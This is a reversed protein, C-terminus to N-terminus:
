QLIVKMEGLTLKVEVAKEIAPYTYTNAQLGTQRLVKLTIEQNAKLSILQSRLPSPNAQTSKLDIGNVSLIIDGTKLGAKEAASNPAIVSKGNDEFLFEGFDTPLFTYQKKLVSTIPQSFIGIRPRTITGNEFFSNLSSVIVSSPIALGINQASNVGFTNMGIVQGSPNFLPGGYNGPNIAADTQILGDASAPQNTCEDTFGTNINRNVGSVIGKTVTNQFEGLANGVALVEMGLQINKPDSFSLSSFTDDTQTSSKVVKLLALDYFPDVSLLEANYMKDESNTATITFNSKTSKCISSIIHKNTVILGDKSVAYGTGEVTTTPTKNSVVSLSFISPLVQNVVETTTKADAPTAFTLTSSQNQQLGLIQNAPKDSSAQSSSSSSSPLIFQDRIYPLNAVNKSFDSNPNLIIYVFVSTLGVILLILLVGIFKFFSGIRHSFSPKPNVGKSQAPAPHPNSYSLNTDQQQIFPNVSNDQHPYEPSSEPNSHQFNQENM